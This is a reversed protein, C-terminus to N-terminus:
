EVYFTIVLHDEDASYQVTDQKSVASIKKWNGATILDDVAKQMEGSSKFQVSLIKNDKQKTMVDVVSDVSYTDLLYKNYIYYNYKTATCDVVKFVSEDIIHTKVLEQETICFYDYDADNPYKENGQDDRYDLDDWTVDMFYKEGELDLVNWEHPEGASGTVINCGIGMYKMVLHFAEAYGECVAKKNILSGYVGFIYEDEPAQTGSQYAEYATTDYEVHTVLYDHVYKVKHFLDSQKNAEDAIRKAEQQVENMYKGQDYSDSWFQFCKMTIKMTDDNKAPGSKGEVEYGKNFWFYEPYDSILALVPRNVKQSYTDFDINELTCSVQGSQVAKLLKEYIEKEIDELQESYVIEEGTTQPPQEQGVEQPVPEMDTAAVGICLAISGIFLWIYKLLGSNRENQM